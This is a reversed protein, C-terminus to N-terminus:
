AEDQGAGIQDFPTENITRVAALAERLAAAEPEEGAEAMEILAATERMWRQLKPQYIEAARMQALVAPNNLFSGIVLGIEGPQIDTGAATNLADATDQTSFSTVIQEIRPM